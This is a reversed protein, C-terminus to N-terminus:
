RRLLISEWRAQDVKESLKSLLEGVTDMDGEAAASAIDSVIAEAVDRPLGYVEAAIEAVDVGGERRYSKTGAAGVSSWEGGVKWEIRVRVGAEAAARKAEQLILAKPVASSSSKVVLHILPELGEGRRPTASLIARRVEGGIYSTLGPRGRAELRVVAVYQPRRRSLKVKDVVPADGSLDVLLPCGALGVEERRLPDMVGPYAYPTQADLRISQRHVHGLAAYSFERPLDTSSAIADFKIEEDLGFHGLLVKVGERERAISALRDMARLFLRRREEDTGRIFPVIYVGLGRTPEVVMESLDSGSRLTPAKFNDLAADLISLVTSEKVHPTDHEGHAAVVPIGRQELLKLAEVARKIDRLQPRPKDFLDGAVVVAEPRERLAVEVIEEFVRYIDDRRFELNYPRAGLHVDAIHLIQVM